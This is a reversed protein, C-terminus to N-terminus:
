KNLVIEMEYGQRLIRFNLSDSRNVSEYFDNMDRINKRNITQIVDGTRLGISSDHVYAVVLDGANKSLGLEDRIEDTIPVVSIGPWLRPTDAQVEINRLGIEVPITRERGEREVLFEIIEEPDLGTITRTLDTSDDIASGGVALIVDGPLIGSNMAPSDVYVNFVFAGADTDLRMEDKLDESVDGMNVGLWGYQVSGMSIFDEIAERANNIPIAFGLGISGGTQSAIWTNIGIVEGDLNVLAGGSNGQNIAADTQLYDTLSSGGPSQERGKASIIGATVTSEFGYPNGIALVWDGVQTDDSDGLRAVPIREDSEFAVLALDKLPDGGILRAEYERGDYLTITIEDASGVVHNNTLVYVSSGRKEVIVGSGLGEQRYQRSEDDDPSNQQGFPWGFFFNFPNQFGQYEVVEVVNVSVVVPLVDRSVERFATQLSEVDSRWNQASATTLSGALMLILVAATIVSRKKM